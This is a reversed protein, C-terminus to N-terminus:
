LNLKKAIEKFSGDPVGSVRRFGNAGQRYASYVDREASSLSPRLEVQGKDSQVIINQGDWKWDAVESRIRTLGAVVDGITQLRKQPDPNTTQRILSKASNTVWPPLSDFYILKGAEARMRIVDDILLSRDCDNDISDYRKREARTMYDKGDYHLIGGLLQYTVMGIQYIDGLLTYKSSAFTEPPRYLISHRTATTETCGVDLKRVSGFDAIRPVGKDMVINGPKLDRHLMSKVHITSVGHCIGLVIDLAQHISPRSAILDDLDGESCRPTIFFAWDSSGSVMRAEHIPLVNQSDISALQRPEDHQRGPEGSYFKIAVHQRTLRNVAFYLFGNAGRCNAEFGEYHQSLNTLEDQVEQPIRCM